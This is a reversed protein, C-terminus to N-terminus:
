QPLAKKLVDVIRIKDIDLWSRGYCNAIVVFQENPSLQAVSSELPFPFGPILVLLLRKQKIHEKLEEVTPSDGYKWEDGELM